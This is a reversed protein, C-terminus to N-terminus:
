GVRCLLDYSTNRNGTRSLHLKARLSKQQLQGVVFDILLSMPNRDRM